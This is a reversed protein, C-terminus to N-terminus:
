VARKSQNANIKLAGKCSRSLYDRSSPRNLARRRSRRSHSVIKLWPIRVFKEVIHFLYLVLLIGTFWFGGMAVTNFWGGRSHNSHTSVTICIFGLLNLVQFFVGARNDNMFIRRPAASRARMTCLYLAARSEYGDHNLFGNYGTVCGPYRIGAM